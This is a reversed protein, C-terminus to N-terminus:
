WKETNKFSYNLKSAVIGENLVRNFNQLLYNFMYLVKKSFLLLSLASYIEHQRVYSNFYEYCSVFFM